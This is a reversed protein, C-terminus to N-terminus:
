VDSFEEFLYQQFGDDNKIKQLSDFKYSLSFIKSKIRMKMNLIM